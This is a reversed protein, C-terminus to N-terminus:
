NSIAAQIIFLIGMDRASRPNTHHPHTIITNTHPLHRGHKFTRAHGSPPPIRLNSKARWFFRPRVSQSGSVIHVIKVMATSHVFGRWPCFYGQNNALTTPGHARSPTSHSTPDFTEGRLGVRLEARASSYESDKLIIIKVPQKENTILRHM